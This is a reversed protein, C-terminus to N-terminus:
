WTHSTWAPSPAPGSRVRQEVDVAGALAGRRQEALTSSTSAPAPSRPARRRCRLRRRAAPRRPAAQASRLAAAPLQDRAAALTPRSRSPSRSGGDRAALRATRQEFQPRGIQGSQMVGVGPRSASGPTSAGSSAPACAACAHRPSGCTVYASMAILTCRRRASIAVAAAAEARRRRCPRGLVARQVAREDGVAVLVPPEDGRAEQM